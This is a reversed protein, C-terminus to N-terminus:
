LYRHGKHIAASSPNEKLGVHWLEASEWHTLPLLLCSGKAMLDMTTGVTYGEILVQEWILVSHNCLVARFTAALWLSFRWCKSHPEPGCGWELWLYDQTSTRSGTATSESQWQWLSNRCLSFNPPHPLVATSSSFHSCFLSWPSCSLKEQKFFFDGSGKVTRKNYRKLNLVIKILM